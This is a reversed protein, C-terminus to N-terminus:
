DRRVEYRVLDGEDRVRRFGFWEAFRVATPDDALVQAELRSYHDFVGRFASRMYRLDTLKFDRKIFWLYPVGMLTERWVGLLFSERGDVSVTWLRESTTLKGKPDEITIPAHLGESVTMKTM